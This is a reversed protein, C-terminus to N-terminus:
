GNAKQSGSQEMRLLGCKSLEQRVLFRVLDAVSMEVQAARTKLSDALLPPFWVQLKRTNARSRPM